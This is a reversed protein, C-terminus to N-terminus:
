PRLAGLFFRPLDTRREDIFRAFAPPDMGLLVSIMPRAAFPFVCLSLLNVMFQEPAIPRM